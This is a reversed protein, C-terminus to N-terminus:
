LLTDRLGDLVICRSAEDFIFGLAVLEDVTLMGPNNERLLYDEVSLYLARACEEPTAGSSERARRMWSEM